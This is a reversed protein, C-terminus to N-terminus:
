NSHYYINEYALMNVSPECALQSKIGESADAYMCNCSQFTAFVELGPYKELLEVAMAAPEYQSEFGVFFGVSGARPTNSFAVPDECLADSSSPSGELVCGSIFFISLVVASARIREM